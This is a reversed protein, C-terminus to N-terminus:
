NHKIKIEKGNSDRCAISGKMFAYWTKHTAIINNEFQIDIDRCGRYAIVTAKLGCKMVKTTGIRNTRKSKKRVHKTNKYRKGNSDICAIYGKEFAYWTKHPVIVNNEFQIDIDRCNRYVIITAKLGCLMTKTIGVRTKCYDNRDTYTINGRKFNECQKHSVINGNEFRVDIDRCGRYAIVTAKLGCKMTKTIGVRKQPCKIQGNCFHVWRKNTVIVNNEFQVDIDANNRYAIVTAKLGCNMMKTVGLKQELFQAQDKKRNKETKEESSDTFWSTLDISNSM